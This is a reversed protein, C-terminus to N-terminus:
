KNINRTHTYLKHINQFCIGIEYVYNIIINEYNTLFFLKEDLPYFAGCVLFIIMTRFFLFKKYLVTTKNLSTVCRWEYCFVAFANLEVRSTAVLQIIFGCIPRDM